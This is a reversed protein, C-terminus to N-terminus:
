RRETTPTSLEGVEFGRGARLGTPGPGPLLALVIGSAALILALEGLMRGMPIEARIYTIQKLSGPVATPSYSDPLPTESYNATYLKDSFLFGRPLPKKDEVSVRPPFLAASAIALCTIVLLIRRATTM